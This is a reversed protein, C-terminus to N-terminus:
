DRGQKIKNISSYMVVLYLQFMMVVKNQIQCLDLIGSVHKLLLEEMDSSTESLELLHEMLMSMMQIMNRNFRIHTQHEQWPPKLLLSSLILLHYLEVINKTPM